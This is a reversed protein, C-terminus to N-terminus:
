NTIIRISSRRPITRVNKQSGLRFYNIDFNHLWSKIGIDMVDIPDQGRQFDLAEFVKLAKM